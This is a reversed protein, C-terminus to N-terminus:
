PKPHHFSYDNKDEVERLNARLNLRALVQEVKDEDDEFIVARILAESLPQDKKSSVLKLHPRKNMVFLYVCM